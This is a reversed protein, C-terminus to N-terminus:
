TKATCYYLSPLRSMSTGELAAEATRLLVLVAVVPTRISSSDLTTRTSSLTAAAAAASSHEHARSQKAVLCSFVNYGGPLIKRVTTDQHWKDNIQRIKTDRLTAQLVTTTASHESSETCHTGTDRPKSIM